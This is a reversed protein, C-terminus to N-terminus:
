FGSGPQALYALEEPTSPRGLAANRHPFRGFRAIVVQHRVAYDLYDGFGANEDALAQFLAVSREQDAASESHEFPLYVFVRELPTLTRDQGEDVLTAAIQRALPDGAFARAEGRFLNRPFQDLLLLLALAGRSTAAWDALRGAIAEEVAPLFQARIAEDFAPDKVFWEPRSQGHRPDGPRGFWFDLVAQPKVASM